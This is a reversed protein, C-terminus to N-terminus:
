EETIWMRQRSLLLPTEREAVVAVESEVSGFESGCSVDDSSDWEEAADGGELAMRTGVKECSEDDILEGGLESLGGLLCVAVAPRSPDAVETPGPLRRMIEVDPEGLDRMNEFVVEMFSAVDGAGAAAPRRLLGRVAPMASALSP